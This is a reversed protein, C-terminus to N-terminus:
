VGLRLRWTEFALDRTDVPGGQARAKKEAYNVDGIDGRTQGPTRPQSRGQNGGNSFKGLTAKLPLRSFEQQTKGGVFQLIDRLKQACTNQFRSPPRCEAAALQGFADRLELVHAASGRAAGAIAFVLHNQQQLIQAVAPDRVSGQRHPGPANLAPEPSGACPRFGMAKFTSSCAPYLRPYARTSVGIRQGPEWGREDLRLGNRADPKGVPKMTSERVRPGHGKFGFCGWPDM